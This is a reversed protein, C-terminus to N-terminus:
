TKGMKHHLNLKHLMTLKILIILKIIHYDFLTCLFGTNLYAELCQKIRSNTAM